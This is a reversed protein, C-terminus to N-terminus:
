FNNFLVNEYRSRIIKYHTKADFDEDDRLQTLVIITIKFRENERYLNKTTERYKNYIYRIKATNKKEFFVRINIKKM